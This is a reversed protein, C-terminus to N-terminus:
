EKFPVINKSELTYGTNAIGSEKVATSLRGTVEVAYDLGKLKLPHKTKVYIIQNPPPPPVHICAGFYPVLLFEKIETLELDLPVVYGPIRITKGNLKKTIPFAKPDYFVTDNDEDITANKQMLEEIAEDSVDKPILDNWDIKLPEEEAAATQHVATLLLCALFAFIWLPTKSKIQLM